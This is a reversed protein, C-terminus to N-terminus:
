GEFTFSLTYIKSKISQISETYITNDRVLLNKLGQSIKLETAFKFYPLYIEFAGGVEYAEDDRILRIPANVGALKLNVNEKSALDTIYKVGACVYMDFNGVRKSVLKYDLPFDLYTSEIDKNVSFAYVGSFGYSIEREGFALDPLFRIRSYPSLKYESVIGLNFGAQATTTITKLTDFRALNPVPVLFFNSNNIAIIFGFHIKHHNYAPLNITQSTVERNLVLISALVFGIKVIFAKIRKISM